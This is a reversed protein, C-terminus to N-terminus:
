EGIVVQTYRIVKDNLTYGKKIVDVIKGKMEETPSPIKTVAEHKDLNFENDTTEIASVGKQKLFEIFKSYILSIGVKVAEIDKSQDINNIAREVDDVLPLIDKLIDEGATKLLDMRERLTRRKYNDFEAVLRIYKDNMENLQITLVEEKCVEQTEPIQHESINSENTQEDLNESTDQISDINEKEKTKDKKSM